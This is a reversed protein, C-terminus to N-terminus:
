AAAGKKRRATIDRLRELVKEKPGDLLVKGRELVILRETLALLPM